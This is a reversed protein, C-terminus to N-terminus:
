SGAGRPARRMLLLQLISDVFPRNALVNLMLYLPATTLVAVVMQLLPQGVERVLFFGPIMCLASLLVPRLLLVVFDALGVGALPRYIGYWVPLLLLVSTAGMWLALAMVGQMSGIIMAPLTIALIGLSMRLELRALGVGLILGRTPAIMARAYGTVAMVALLPGTGHWEAGFLVRVLVDAFVAMGVYLPANLAGVMNLTAFTISKVKRQDHQVSSILPFSVRSIINNILQQLLTVFNRPVSYLGLSSAPVFKGLVIVDLMNNVNSVIASSVASVGFRLYPRLEQWNLRWAPKWGSSLFLWVLGTNVVSRALSAWVLTYPGAGAMATLIATATGSLGAITEIIAMPRFRMHKEANLRHQAGLGVVLFTGSSLALLPLLRPDGYIWAILPSLALVVGGLLVAFLAGAWFLSSREQDSVNRRQIFASNLGTDNIMWPFSLVAAVIAMVGYDAPTLIHTLIVVQVIRMMAGTASAVTTWRVASFTKDKIGDPSASM